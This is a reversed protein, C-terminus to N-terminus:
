EEQEKEDEKAKREEMQEDYRKKLQAIKRSRCASWCAEFVAYSANVIMVLAILGFFTYGTYYRGENPMFGSFLFMHYYILMQIIENILM